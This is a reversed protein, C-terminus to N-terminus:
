AGDEEEDSTSVDEGTPTRLVRGGPMAACVKAVAEHSLMPVEWAMSFFRVNERIVSHMELHRPLLRSMDKRKIHDAVSFDRESAASTAM